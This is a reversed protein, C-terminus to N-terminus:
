DYGTPVLKLSKLYVLVQDTQIWYDRPSLTLNHVGPEDFEIVGADVETFISQSGTDTVGINLKQYNIRVWYVEGAFADAA